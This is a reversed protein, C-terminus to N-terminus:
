RGSIAVGIDTHGSSEDSGRGALRNGAWYLARMPDGPEALFPYEQPMLEDGPIVDKITAGNSCVAAWLPPRIPAQEPAAPGRREPAQAPEGQARPGSRNARRRAAVVPARTEPSAMCSQRQQCPQRVNYEMLSASAGTPGLTRRKVFHDPFGQCWTNPCRRGTVWRSAAEYTKHHVDDKRSLDPYGSVM